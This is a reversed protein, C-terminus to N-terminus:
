EKAKDKGLATLVKNYLVKQNFPKSIYDNMGAAICRELEGTIAHATMAIIPLNCKPIPLRTRVQRTAEYGDMEPMQIDMLIVDFDDSQIKELAIVGNDAVEVQWKWDSLIKKALLQNFQNDEVVLVRLGEIRAITEKEEPPNKELRKAMSKKYSLTFTFRSGKGIESEVQISGGLLEILQKTITLGLGTGGYKRTTDNSAQRFSEFISSVNEKAIGIGSDVVTFHLEIHTASEKLLTVETKVGGEHTFKIANSVLNVLIQNLRTPDGKVYYPVKTDVVSSLRIGKEVSKPLMLETMSSIVGHLDFDIEEFTVKGSELKSFDLIDNIIVLLNESSTKIARIYQEQEPTMPSKLFIETFGVIANMPTRIEHSVNALFQDKVKLSEELQRKALKLEDLAKTGKLLSHEAIKNILILDEEAKKQKSIDSDISIIKEVEGKEDLVPTLSTLTWYGDGRRTFNKSEYTVPHKQRIVKKYHESEPSIGTLQGRTLKEGRTGKVDELTYGTLTTFGNNVWEILGDKDAIIVANHSKSAVLALKELEKERRRETVDLSTGLIKRIQKNEDIQVEGKVYLHRVSNDPRIIRHEFSFPQHSRFAHKYTKKVLVIDEPHVYDTVGLPTKVAEPTLGYIRFMQDSWSMLNSTTDWEWSGLQAIQQAIALKEQNKRILEEANKRETIDRTIVSISKVEGNKDRILSLTESVHIQMGDKRIRISEHQNTRDHYDMDEMETAVKEKVNDPVLLLFSKGIVESAAYGYLKESAPNWNIITGNKSREIISDNSFEVVSALRILQEEIRKQETVDRSIGSLGTVRGKDNFIPAVTISIDILAGDKRIRKTHFDKIEKGAKARELVEIFDKRWAVPTFNMPSRKGIMEEATYGYILEAGKNWSSYIDDMTTTTVADPTSEVIIALEALEQEAQKRETIDRIICFVPKNPQDTLIKFSYAIHILRGSKHKVVTEGSHAHEQQGSLREQLRKALATREEPIVLDFFSSAHFLEKKSYGYMNCLADNVYVFKGSETICVGEGMESQARLLNEYLVTQRNLAELTRQQESIDKAILLIGNKEEKFQLMSASIKVPIIKETKTQLTCPFYDVAKHARVKDLVKERFEKYDDEQSSFFDQLFFGKAEETRIGLAKAGAPNIYEIAGDKNAVLLIDRINALVANATLTPSLDFLGYRLLAIVTALSFFSMFTSTVPIPAQDLVNPFIIQTIIGQVTPIALGSSILLAQNRREKVRRMRYAYQLLLAFMAIALVSVWIAETIVVPNKNPVFNWGWTPTYRMPVENLGIRILSIFVLVPFYLAFLTGYSEAIKKRGTFLLAFHLGTPAIFLPGLSLVYNWSLATQESASLRMLMDNLQWIGLAIVFAAFTYSVKSKPLRFVIFFFIAVNLCAPVLALLVGAPNDFRFNLLQEKM